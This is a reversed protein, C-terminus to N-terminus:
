TNHATEMENRCIMIYIQHFLIARVEIFWITLKNCKTLPEPLSTPNNLMLSRLICLQYFYRIQKNKLTARFHPCVYNPDMVNMQRHTQVLNLGYIGFVRFSEESNITQSKNLDSFKTIGTCSTLKQLCSM